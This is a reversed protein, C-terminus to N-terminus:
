NAQKQDEGSQRRIVNEEARRRATSRLSESHLAIEDLYCLLAILLTGIQRDVQRDLDTNRDPVLDEEHTGSQADTLWPLVFQNKYIADGKHLTRLLGKMQM